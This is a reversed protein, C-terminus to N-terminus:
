PTTVKIQKIFQEQWTEIPTQKDGILSYKDFSVKLSGEIKEVIVEYLTSKNDSHTKGIEFFCTHQSISTCKGVVLQGKSAGDDQYLSEGPQTPGQRRVVRFEIIEAAGVTLKIQNSLIDLSRLSGKNLSSYQGQPLSSTVEAWSLAGILTVAMIIILKM